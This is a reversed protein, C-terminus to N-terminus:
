AGPAAQHRPSQWKEVMVALQGDDVHRQVDVLDKFHRFLETCDAEPLEIGLAELRMRFAHRGSHKGLVLRSAAMGVDDPHMIEYTTREKLVGDQHIGSEHAFAHDGVVAKNRPVPMGTLEAVISSTPGLLSTVINTTPGLADQRVQLAMVIEELACNGSREGIGNITCEVQRAGGQIAALANASALGLDDHTHASFIVRSAGPIQRILDEFLRGYTWPTAYGVTDPINITTAGAEVAASCIEVLFGLDTRTADQASFEVDDCLARAQEVSRIVQQVAQAEDIRLMHELHLKSTSIFVHIRPRHASKISAWAREIDRPHTRALAAVSPGEVEAAIRQISKFEGESTVPFGAEIIDVGLAALRRAITIKEDVTLSVGPTQEGDRLTTDFIYVQDM